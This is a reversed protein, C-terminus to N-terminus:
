RLTVELDELLIRRSLQVPADFRLLEEAAQGILTPEERLRALQDDADTAPMGLLESIVAFPLPFALDAIVDMAEQAEVRDLALDVLEQIRDGLAEVCRPTFARAVLRRIRTHDPPDLNLIAAAGDPTPYIEGGTVLAM